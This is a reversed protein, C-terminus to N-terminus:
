LPKLIVRGLSYCIVETYICMKLFVKHTYSTTGGIGNNLEAIKIVPVGTESFNIKKFALGNKWTALEFLSHRVGVFDSQINYLSSSDFKM